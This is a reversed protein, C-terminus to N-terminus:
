LPLIDSLIANSVSFGQETLAIRGNKHTMLGQQIFPDLPADLAHNISKGFRLLFDQECLGDSLRLALMVYESIMEDGTPRNREIVIDEGRLFADMDRSNGFREGDLFSHAAVGLGLYERYQWTHTNHRSRFGDRAFNSIEYHEWGHSALTRCVQEYLALTQEEDPIAIRGEALLRDLPTGDEVTLCYASLHTPELALMKELTDELSAATQEPIGLMVDLNVNRIGARRVDAVTRSVDAARHRRGLRHLEVDQMSQVGMSVRNIGGAVWPTWDIEGTPNCEVTIEADPLIRFNAHIAETLKRVLHPPLLSPTGGGFYVTDVERDRAPAREMRRILEDVYASMLAEDPRPFSCFDCYVCKSRCFPIHLYLGIPESSPHSPTEGETVPRSHRGTVAGEDSPAKTYSQM